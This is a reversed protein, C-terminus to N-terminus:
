CGRDGATVGITHRVPSVSARHLCHANSLKSVMASFHEVGHGSACGDGHGSFTRGDSDQTRKGSSSHGSSLEDLPPAMERVDIRGLEPPIEIRHQVRFQSRYPFRDVRCM